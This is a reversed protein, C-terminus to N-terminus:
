RERRGIRMRDREMKRREMEKRGLRDESCGETIEKFAAASSKVARTDPLGQSSLKQTGCGVYINMFEDIFYLSIAAFLIAM